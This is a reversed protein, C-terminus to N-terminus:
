HYVAQFLASILIGYYKKLSVAVRQFHIIARAPVHQLTTSYCLQLSLDLLRYTVIGVNSWWLDNSFGQKKATKSCHYGTVVYNLSFLIKRVNDRLYYIM